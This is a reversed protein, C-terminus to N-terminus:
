FEPRRRRVAVVIVVLLAGGLWPWISPGVAPARVEFTLTAWNSEYEVDPEEVAEMHILRVYWRGAVTLPMSAEGAGDTRGAFAEIHNGDADHGHFGEHSGYVPQGALPVGARLVRFPMEDGVSLEYPNRLPVIELPYGLEALAGASREAGVQVVAKVHKSYRERVAQEMQGERQRQALVDVVGDHRLYENFDEVELEIVRAATSVGLAYSGPAGTRFRLRTREGVDTWQSEDPHVVEAVPGVISVDLMRDRTIVNDSRAFTGNFLDVEAPSDPPLFYSDLKLFLSHALLSSGILCSAVAIPVARM